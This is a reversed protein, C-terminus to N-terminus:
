QRRIPYGPLSSAFQVVVLQFHCVGIKAIIVWVATLAPYFEASYFWFLCDGIIPPETDVVGTDRRGLSCAKLPCDPTRGDDVHSHHIILPYEGMSYHRAEPQLKWKREMSKPDVTWVITGLQLKRLTTNATMSSLKSMSTNSSNLHLTPGDIALEELNEFLSLAVSSLQDLDDSTVVSKSIRLGRINSFLLGIESFLRELPWNTLFALNQINTLRKALSRFVVPAEDVTLTRVDVRVNALGPLDYALLLALSGDFHQMSPLGIPNAIPLPQVEAELIEPFILKVRTLNPHKNLVNPIRNQTSPSNCIELTRLAILQGLGDSLMDGWTHRLPLAKNPITFLLSLHVVKTASELIFCLAKGFSEGVRSDMTDLGKLRNTVHLRRVMAPHDSGTTRFTDVLADITRRDVTLDFYLWRTAAM